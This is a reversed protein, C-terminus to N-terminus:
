LLYSYKSLFAKGITGGIYCDNRLVIKEFQRRLITVEEKLEFNKGDLRDLMELTVDRLDEPSNDEFVLEPPLNRPNQIVGIPEEFMQEFTLYQDLNVRKILKPIVIDQGYWNPLTIPVWNTLVCPRGFTAPLISLGSNTGLMFECGQLLMTDLEESRYPKMAYDIVKPNSITLPTMSDDGMRLVYGGRDLIAQIALQYSEINADRASPYKKNWNGHFGSERVHLCVYWAGIPIGVLGKLSNYRASETQTPMPILSDRGQSEWERQIQSASDAFFHIDPLSPIQYNWFDVFLTQQEAPDLESWSPSSSEKNQNYYEEGSNALKINHKLLMNLITSGPIGRLRESRPIVFYDVNPMWGLERQKILIDIMAVHGIAVFWSDTLFRYNVNVRKRVICNLSNLRVLIEKSGRKSGAMFKFIALNKLNNISQDSLPNIFKQVLLLCQIAFDIQGKQSFLYGIQEVQNILKTAKNINKKSNKASLYYEIQNEIKKIKKDLRRSIEKNRKSYLSVDINDNQFDFANAINLKLKAKFSQQIINLKASNILVSLILIPYNKLIKSLL